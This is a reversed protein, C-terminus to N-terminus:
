EDAAGEPDDREGEGHEVERAGLGVEAVHECRSRHRHDREQEDAPDPGVAQRAVV